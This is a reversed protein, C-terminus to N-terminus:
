GFGKEHVVPEPDDPSSATSKVGVFVLSKAFRKLLERQQASDAAGGDVSKQLREVAEVIQPNGEDLKQAAYPLRLVEQKWLKKHLDEIDYVEPCLKQGGKQEDVARKIYHRDLSRMLRSILGAVQPLRDWQELYSQILMLDNELAFILGAADQCHVTVQRELADYLDKGRIHAGRQPETSSKTPRSYVHVANYIGLWSSRELSPVKDSTPTHLYAAYIANLSAEIWDLCETSGKSILEPSPRNPLNITSNTSDMITFTTDFALDLGSPAPCTFIPLM